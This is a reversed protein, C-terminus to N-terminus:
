RVTVFLSSLLDQRFPHRVEYRGRLMSSLRSVGRDKQYIRAAAEKNDVSFLRYLGYSVPLRAAPKAAPRPKATQESRIEVQSEFERPSVM